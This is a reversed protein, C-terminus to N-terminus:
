CTATRAAAHQLLARVRRGRAQRVVPCKKSANSMARRLHRARPRRALRGRRRAPARPSSGTRAASRARRDGRPSRRPTQAGPRSSRPGASCRGRKSPRATARRARDALRPPAPPRDPRLRLRQGRDARVAAPLIADIAAAARRARTRAPPPRFTSASRGQSTSASSRARPRPWRRAACARGARRAGDVDILTMARTPEIALEGGAFRVIGSRAEEILDDWGLRASGTPRRHSLAAARRRAAACRRRSTRSGRSRGSGRSPAPFASRAHGRDAADGGEAVGPAGRPCCITSRRGRQARGRQPWGRRELRAAGDLVSGARVAGDLLIRAEVIEGDEVRVLAPRASAASPWGSLCDSLGGVKLLAGPRPSRCASSTPIAEPSTASMSKAMARSRM